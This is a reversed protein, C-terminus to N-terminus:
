SMRALRRNWSRQAQEFGARVQTALDAYRASGAGPLARVIARTGDPIEDHLLARVIERLRLKVRNRTVANGVSKPVIFGARASTMGVGAADPGLLHIVVTGGGFRAGGRVVSSFDEARTLRHASALV